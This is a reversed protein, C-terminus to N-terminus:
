HPSNILLGFTYSIFPHQPGLQTFPGIKQIFSLQFKLGFGNWGERIGM